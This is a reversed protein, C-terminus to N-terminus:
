YRKKYIKNEYNVVNSNLKIGYKDLLKFINESTGNMIIDECIKLALDKNRYYIMYLEIAILYSIQYSIESVIGQEFYFNLDNQSFGEKNLVTIM